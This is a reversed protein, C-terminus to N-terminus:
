RSVDEDSTHVNEHHNDSESWWTSEDPLVIMPFPEKGTLINELRQQSLTEKSASPYKSSLNNNELVPLCCRQDELRNAQVRQLFELFDESNSSLTSVDFQSSVQPVRTLSLM